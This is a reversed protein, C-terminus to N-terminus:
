YDEWKEGTYINYKGIETIFFKIKNIFNKLSKCYNDM